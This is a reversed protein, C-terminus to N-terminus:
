KGNSKEQKTKKPIKIVRQREFNKLKEADIGMNILVQKTRQTQKM